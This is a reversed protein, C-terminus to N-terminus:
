SVLVIFNLIYCFSTGRLVFTFRSGPRQTCRGLRPNEDGGVPQILGTCPLEKWIFSLYRYITRLPVMWVTGDLDLDMLWDRICQVFLTIRSLSLNGYGYFLFFKSEIMNFLTDINVNQVKIVTKEWQTFM